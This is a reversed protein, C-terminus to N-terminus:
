HERLKKKVVSHKKREDASLLINREIAEELMIKQFGGVATMNMFAGQPRNHLIKTPAQDADGVGDAARPAGDVQGIGLAGNIVGHRMDLQQRLQMVKQTWAEGAVLPGEDCVKLIEKQLAADDM